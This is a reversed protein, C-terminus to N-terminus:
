SFTAPLIAIIINYEIIMIKLKIFAFYNILPLYNNNILYKIIRITARAIIIIDRNKIHFRHFDHKINCLQFNKFIQKLCTVSFLYIPQDNIM